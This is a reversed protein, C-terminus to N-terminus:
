MGRHGGEFPSKELKGRKQRLKLGGMKFFWGASIFPNERGPLGQGEM